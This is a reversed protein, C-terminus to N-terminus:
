LEVVLVEHIHLSGITVQLKGNEFSWQLDQKGPQLSVQKPESPCQLSLKLPGAAPVSEVMHATPSLTPEAGLNYLHVLLRNGKRRLSLQVSPPGSLEVLPKGFAAKMIRGIAARLRPYRARGYAAFVPGPAAVVTGKGVRNSIAAPFGLGDGEPEQNSLLPLVEHAQELRLPQWPGTVPVAEDGVGVFLTEERLSGRKKAGLIRRFAHCTEAGSVVLHGGEQVYRELAQVLKMPLHTQEAVVVAPYEELRRLLADENLVDVHWHNELLGFLAGTVPTLASGVTYLGQNSAYYHSQSHLLAVQPVSETHQSVTKRRRCFAAVQALIDQHWGIVHGSRQPVDYIFVSGGNAMVVACEQCLHAVTKTTWPNDGVRLFSWAMLDWPLGRSDLFKGEILATETGFSPTFDGSLYDLPASVEDPQRVSYMWNSCVLCTPKLEHIAETYRTVYREFSRRQFAHWEEWHAQGRETPIETIGTEETFLKRCTDCWCIQAAWNEGDVWFGDVDYERVIELMQPIMLGEAYGKNACLSNAWPTGDAKMRAWEPHQQQAVGDWTGSYHVSLPIGLERTVKRWIKLADRKIGPSPTGVKTPYGTYGPHGKCDYQVFDPKAKLLEERVHEESTDRGLVTDNENPHLDYHLGFFAKRHWNPSTDSM